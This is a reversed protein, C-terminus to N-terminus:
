LVDSVCDRFSKATLDDLDGAQERVTERVTQSSIARVHWM